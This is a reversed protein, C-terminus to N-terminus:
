RVIHIVREMGLQTHERGDQSDMFCALVWYGRGAHLREQQVAGHSVPDMFSHFGVALQQVLGDKGARLAHKMKRADSHNRAKIAVIMHVVWGRNKFRILDGRHLTRAGRFGFDIARVRSDPTPLAAPSSAQTITFEAHPWQTPNRGSSDFAIYNAARLTTQAHSRGNPAPLAFVISGFRSASNPDAAAPTALFDYVQQATVGPNLRFLVLDGQRENTVTMVVKNAGSVQAGTVTVSTGDMAVKLKPLSTTGATAPVLTAALLAATAAAVVSLSARGVRRHTAARWTKM